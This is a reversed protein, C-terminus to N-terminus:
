LNDCSIHQPVCSEINTVVNFHIMSHDSGIANSPDVLVDDITLCEPDTIILDLTNGCKHTSSKVYQSLSFTNLMDIFKITEHDRTKNVHVNFDGCIIFHKFNLKIYELFTYFEDLFVSFSVSGHRYIAVLTLNVSNNSTKLTQIVCEFSTNELSKQFIQKYNSKAVIAVGGGKRNDRVFHFINYGAEKLLSTINNNQSRLWTESLFCM